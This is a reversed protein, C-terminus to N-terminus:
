NNLMLGDIGIYYVHPNTGLNGKLVFVNNNRILKSIESNVDNLDGFIRADSNCTNVCSPLVGQDLRHKCFDCKNAVKTKKNYFKREYPCAQICYKCGICDKDNQVVVGDANKFTAKTPCVKTCPSNHCHNCLVPLFNRKVDPFEGRENEIVWSKYVGLPVKYETKCAVSCAHCGMCRRLDIVMGYRKENEQKADALSKTSLGVVTALGAVSVKIFDKRSIQM